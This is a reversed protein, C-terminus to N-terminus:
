AAERLEEASRLIWDVEQEWIDLLKAIGYLCTRESDDLSGDAYTVITLDEVIKRTMGFHTLHKVRKALVEMRAELEGDELAAFETILEAGPDEPLISRLAELECEEVEDNARALLNGACLVFDRVFETIEEDTCDQCNPEMIQMCHAIEDECEARPSGGGEGTSARFTECEAFLMLAKLRVPSFPHTTFWAGPDDEGDLANEIDGLQRLYDDIDFRLHGQTVGSSVKFLASAAAQPDGCCLLGVRDATVERYRNWSYLKLAMRPDEVAGFGPFRTHYLYHGIEHGIVYLLEKEDLRELLSSTVLLLAKDKEPPYCAANLDSDQYVYVEVEQKLELVERCREVITCIQPSMIPTLKLSSTILSKRASGDDCQQQYWLAVLYDPNALIERLREREGTFSLAEMDVGALDDDYLNGIRDLGAVVQARLDETFARSERQQEDELSRTKKKRHLGLRRQRSQLVEDLEEKRRRYEEPLEEEESESVEIHDEEFSDWAHAGDDPTPEEKVDLGFEGRLAQLRAYYLESVRSEAVSLRENLKAWAKSQEDAFAEKRKEIERGVRFLDEISSIELPQDAKADM